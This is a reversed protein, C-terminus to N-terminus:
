MLLYRRYHYSNVPVNSNLQLGLAIIVNDVKTNTTKNGRLEIPLKDVFEQKVSCVTLTGGGSTQVGNLLSGSMRLQDLLRNCIRANAGVEDQRSKHNDLEELVALPLIIDNEEFANIANPDSLLINTDLIFTKKM